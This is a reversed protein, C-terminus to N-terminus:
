KSTTQFESIIEELNITPVAGFLGELYAKQIVKDNRINFDALSYM